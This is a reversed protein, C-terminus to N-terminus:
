SEDEGTRVLRIFDVPIAMIDRTHHAFTRHIPFTAHIVTDVVARGRIYADLFSRSGSNFIGWVVDASVLGADIFPRDAHARQAGFPPNMIVTDAPPIDACSASVDAELFTVDCELAAANKRAVALAKADWDIGIVEGAGLLAAGCALIGTGCGLDVVRMGRIDGQRDAEHLFRAAVVAPTAYQESRADPDPFGACGELLMEIQRIRM